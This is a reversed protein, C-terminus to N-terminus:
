DINVANLTSRLVDKYRKSQGDGVKRGAKLEGYFLYKPIRNYPMSHLYNTWQLQSRQLLTNARELVETAPIRQQFKIQARGIYRYTGINVNYTKTSYKYV